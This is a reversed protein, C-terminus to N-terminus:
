SEILLDNGERRVTRIRIPDTAPGNLPAGTQLDFRSKHCPCIVTRGDLEGDSLPCQRHTCTDDFAHLVGGVNAVAVEIGDVMVMVMEGDGPAAPGVAVLQGERM